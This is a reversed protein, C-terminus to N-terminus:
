LQCLAVPEASLPCILQKGEPPFPHEDNDLTKGGAHHYLRCHMEFAEKTWPVQVWQFDTFSKGLLDMLTTRLNKDARGVYAIKEGTRSLQFVGLVNDPVKTRINEETFPIWPTMINKLNYLNIALQSSGKFACAL